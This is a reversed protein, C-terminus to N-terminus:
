KGKGGELAERLMKMGRCLNVRVSDPTLGTQRAIEPGTMGEVLRMLLTERYAEPLSRIADLAARSQAGATQGGGAAIRDLHAEELPREGHAGRYYDRARNRAIAGLWGRFAAATRLGGLQKMASLFVDQVLDEAERPPVRALLIAHVMRAYRTYIEGFAARDGAAAARVLNDDDRVEVPALMVPIM